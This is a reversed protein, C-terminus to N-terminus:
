YTKKTINKSARLGRMVREALDANEVRTAADEIEEVEETSLPPTEEQKAPEVKHQQPRYGKPFGVGSLRIEKIIAGGLRENLKQLIVPKLFHLQQAWLSDRCTIFIVGDHVSDARTVSATKEGVVEAWLSIATKERVEGQIGVRKLGAKVLDGLNAFNNKV